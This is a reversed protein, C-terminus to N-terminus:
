LEENKEAQQKWEDLLGAQRICEGDIWIQM